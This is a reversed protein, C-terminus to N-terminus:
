AEAGKQWFSMQYHVLDLDPDGNFEVGFRLDPFDARLKVEHIDKLV